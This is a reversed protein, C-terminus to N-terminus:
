FVQKTMGSITANNATPATSGVDVQNQYYGSYSSRIGYEMNGKTNVSTIIYGDPGDKDYDMSVNPSMQYILDNTTSANDSITLVGGTSTVDAWVVTGSLLMFLSMGAIILGIKKM